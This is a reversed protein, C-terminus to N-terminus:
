GKFLPLQQLIEKLEGKIKLPKGNSGAIVFTVEAEVCVVGTTKNVVQQKMVASTNGTKKMGTKVLVIDNARAPNKYAININVAIFMFGKNMLEEFNIHDEILQWRGEELFELYRANNVHQYQDTHYGRIKIEPEM